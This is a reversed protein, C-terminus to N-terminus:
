IYLPSYQGPCNAGIEFLLSCVCFTRASNKPKRMFAMRHLATAERFELSLRPPAVLMVPGRTTTRELGDDLELLPRSLNGSPVDETRVLDATTSEDGRILGEAVCSAPGSLEEADM